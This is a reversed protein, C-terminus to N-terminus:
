AGFIVLTECKWPKAMGQLTQHLWKGAGRPGGEGHKESHKVSGSPWKGFIVLTECKRPKATGQYTQHLWKAAGRAGGEGYKESTECKRKAVCRFIVINRMETTKHNGAANPAGGAQDCPMFFM